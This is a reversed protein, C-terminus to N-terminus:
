TLVGSGNNPGYQDVDVLTLHYKVDCIALLVISFTGKYNHYLNGSKVHAKILM